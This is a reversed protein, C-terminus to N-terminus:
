GAGGLLAIGADIGATSYSWAFCERASGSTTDIPGDGNGAVCIGQSTDACWGCGAQKVCTRKSNCRCDGPTCDVLCTHPKSFGDAQGVPHCPLAHLASYETADRSCSWLVYALDGLADAGVAEM